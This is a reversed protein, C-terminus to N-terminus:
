TLPAYTYLDLVGPWTPGSYPSPGYFHRVKVGTPASGPQAPYAGSAYIVDLTTVTGSGGSGGLTAAKAIADQVNTIGTFGSIGAPDFSVAAAAHGHNGPAAQSAGTGLQLNSTGNGTGAGIAERAAQASTARLLQRGLSTADSIQASTHNHELAPFASPWVAPYSPPLTTNGTGSGTPAPAWIGKGEAIDRYLVWGPEGGSPLVAPNSDAAEAADTAAQQAAYASTEAAAAATEAAEIMGTLSALHVVFSGSVWWVEPHDDLTFTQTLFLENVAVGTGVTSGPLGVTLPTTFGTDDIAYVQGVGSTALTGDAAIAVQSRYTYTAM